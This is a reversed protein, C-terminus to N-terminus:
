RELAPGLEEQLAKRARFWRVRINGPELELERAIDALSLGEVLHLQAVVRLRDPLKNIAGLVREELALARAETETARENTPAAVGPVDETPSITMAEFFPRDRELRRLTVNRIGEASREASREPM